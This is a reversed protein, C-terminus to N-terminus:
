EDAGADSPRQQPRRGGTATIGYVRGHQIEIVLRKNAITERDFAEPEQVGYFRSRVAHLKKALRTAPTMAVSSLTAHGEPVKYSWFDNGGSLSTM